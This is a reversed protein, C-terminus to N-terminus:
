KRIIRNLILVFFVGAFIIFLSPLASEAILEDSAYEYAKVALTQVKYPKLILTLPLEKMVDVFVLIFASLFGTKLLPLEIKLLTKFATIGLLKSSESLHNGIKLSSAEIPNYAVALFRVIYAYVLAVITGNILLSISIDFNSKFFVILYKDLALTPIMIGIAIVAGPIAYGITTIKSIFRVSRLKNWKVFYIFFFATTTTLLATVLAIGLSQFAIGFFETNFVSNFTLFAWYILQMVPLVFGFFAPISVLCCVLYKNFGKLTIRTITKSSKVGDVYGIKRRQWKEIAILGFILTVLIASLFIATEPEELAFWSRFIGTTFTSVGYYKAAGYDNLVEMLVLVLGGVIAPRALPLVVRFFTRSESAGLLVSTEMLTRSQHLFVARASVYVYPFLSLSLVVILGVPNMVDIRPFQIHITKFLIQLSGSHDFIGAYAYATIYSPIALPLILLWELIKRFPFHFRTVFWSSFVGLVFTLFTCGVILFLSNTVYTAMLYTVVHDWMEGPGDFLKVVITLIPLAIFLVITLTYM